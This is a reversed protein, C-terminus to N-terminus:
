EQADIAEGADTISMLKIMERKRANALKIVAAKAEAAPGGVDAVKNAREEKSIRSEDSLRLRDVTEVGKTIHKTSVEVYTDAMAHAVLYYGKLELARLKLEELKRQKLAEYDKVRSGCRAQAEMLRGGLTKTTAAETVFARLRVQDMADVHHHVLSFFQSLREFKECFWQLHRTCKGLIQKIQVVTAKSRLLGELELQMADFEQTAKLDEELRANLRSEAEFLAQQAM